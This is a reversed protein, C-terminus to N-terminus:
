KAPARVGVKEEWSSSTRGPSGLHSSTISRSRWRCNGKWSINTERPPWPYTSCSCRSHFRPNPKTSPSDWGTPQGSPSPPCLPTLKPRHPPQQATDM